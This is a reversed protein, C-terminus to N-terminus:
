AGRLSKGKCLTFHDQEKVIRLVHKDERIQKMQFNATTKIMETIEIVKRFRRKNKFAADADLTLRTSRNVTNLLTGCTQTDLDVLFENEGTQQSVDLLISEKQNIFLM